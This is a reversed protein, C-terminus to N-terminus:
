LLTPSVVNGVKILVYCKSPIYRKLHSSNQKDGLITCLTRTVMEFLILSVKMLSCSSIIAHALVKVGIMFIRYESEWLQLAFM